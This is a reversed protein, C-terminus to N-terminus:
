RTYTGKPTEWSPSPIDWEAASLWLLLVPLLATQYPKQKWLFGAPWPAPPTTPAAPTPMWPIRVTPSCSLFIRKCDTNRELLVCIFFLNFTFEETNHVFFGEPSNNNLWYGFIYCCREQQLLIVAPNITFPSANPFLSFSSYCLIQKKEVTYSQSSDESQSCPLQKKNWAM